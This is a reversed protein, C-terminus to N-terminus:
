YFWHSFLSFILLWYCHCHRLSSLFSSFSIIAYVSLIALFCHCHCYHCLWHCYHLFSPMAHLHVHYTIAYPTIYYHIYDIVFFFFSLSLLSFLPIMLSLSLFILSFRFIIFAFGVLILLPTIFLFSSVHTIFIAIAFYYWRFPLFINILPAHFSSSSLSFCLRLSFRCHGISIVIPM